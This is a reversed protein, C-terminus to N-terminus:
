RFESIKIRVQIIEPSEWSLIEVAEQPKTLNFGQAAIVYGRSPSTRNFKVVQASLQSDLYRFGPQVAPIVLRVVVQAVDPALSSVPISSVSQETLGGIQIRELIEAAGSQRFTEWNPTLLSKEKNGTRSHVHM